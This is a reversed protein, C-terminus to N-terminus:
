LPLWASFTTGKGPESSVSVRGGLSEAIQKVIALGLGTGGEARSRAKDVRYFREFIHPLHEAAIGEGTDSVDIRVGDGDRAMSLSVAGGDATYKVANDALNGVMQKLRYPDGMVTLEECRGLVVKIRDGALHQSRSLGDLLVEKLSVRTKRSVQGGEVEALVLLDDAIRAMRDTEIRIARLCEERDEASMNRKLLDLNGKIVTLPTRLEHSANEVFQKQSAFAVDLRGIMRDFTTALEQVEDKPGRYNVRRGLHSGEEISRATRTIQQVPSLTRRVVFYGLISSMLLSAIVGGFLALRIRNMTTEVLQLSQGVELVLTQDQLYLPSVIVRVHSGDTATLTKLAVGGAVAQELLSADIPLQQEGLNDSKVVVVGNQDTLQIYTGPSSFDSVTPLKSHIVNYDIPVPLQDSHLTGHVRALAVNLNDNIETRLYNQLLNHTFLGALGLIGALILAFWITIRWRLAM